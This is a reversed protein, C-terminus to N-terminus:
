ALKPLAMFFSAITKADEIEGRLIRQHLDEIPVLVLQLREDHDAHAEGVALETALFAHIKESSYGPAVYFAGLFLLNGARYGTEEELERAAAEEIPEGSELTGAPAELLVKGAPLRFQRVLLVHGDKVPVICVAGRHEVIERHSVTGDALRVKDVRLHLIRGRFIEESAIVEEKLEEM